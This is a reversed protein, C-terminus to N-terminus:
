RACMLKILFVPYTADQQLSAWVGDADCADVGIRAYVVQHVQMPLIPVTRVVM